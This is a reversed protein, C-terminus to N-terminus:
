LMAVAAVLGGLLGAAATQRAGPNSTSSSTAGSGSGTGSASASTTTTTAAASGSGSASGSSSSSSGTAAATAGSTSTCSVASPVSVGQATCLKQAYAVAAAQDAENCVGALCCAIGSIFGKDACICKPDTGCNGIGGALFQDACQKACAPLSDTSQAASFSALALTLLVSIAKM